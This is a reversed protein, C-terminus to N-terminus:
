AMAVIISKTDPRYMKFEVKPTNQFLLDILEFKELKAFPLLQLLYCNSEIEDSDQFLEHILQSQQYNDYAM